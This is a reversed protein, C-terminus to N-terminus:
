KSVTFTRELLRTKGQRNTAEVMVSQTGASLILDLSFQGNQDLIV